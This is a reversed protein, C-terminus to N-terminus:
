PISPASIPCSPLNRVNVKSIEDGGAFLIEIAISRRTGLGALHDPQLFLRVRQDAPGLNIINFLPDGPVETAEIRARARKRVERWL